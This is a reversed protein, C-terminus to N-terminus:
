YPPAQPGSTKGHGGHSPNYAPDDKSHNQALALLLPRVPLHHVDGVDPLDEEPHQLSEDEWQDHRGQYCGDPRQVHRQRATDSTSGDSVVQCGGQQGDDEADDKDDGNM